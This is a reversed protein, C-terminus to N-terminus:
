EAPPRASGAATAELLGLLDRLGDPGIKSEVIGIPMVSVRSPHRAEIDSTPVRTIKGDSGAFVENNGERNLGIGSFTKGSKLEVVWPVYRPAIERSPVLISDALKRRSMRRAIHTLDPGTTGGRGNLTHCKSCQAYSFFLRWGHDIDPKRKDSDMQKLWADAYGSESNAVPPNWIPVSGKASILFETQSVPDVTSLDPPFRGIGLRQLLKKHQASDRLGLMADARLQADLSVDEAIKALVGLREPQSGLALTRVAARSVTQNKSSSLKLLRQPTLSEHDPPLSRLAMTMISDPYGEEGLVRAFYHGRHSKKLNAVKGGDLWELTAMTATFLAPTTDKRMALKKIPPLFLTLKEDAIWRLAYLRVFPSPDSLGASLVSQRVDGIAGSRRTAELWAVRVSPTTLDDQVPRVILRSRSLGEIAANRIFPDSDGLYNVQSSSGPTELKRALKGADSLPPLPLAQPAGSKLSLRWIRGKGHVPYSRDVWDTFFISSDPAVAFDVPRFNEDGQVAVDLKAGFSAGRPELTYREIRYDGWSTVWLQGRYPLVACPAEGTGAVMPLTGPLEGDWAQLPHKGSRGYRFQYGYDGGPVIHMLRCPPMSDPDNGVCFIRNQPDVCIGFPNWFGTALKKLKKGDATCRYINGGEGGGSLKKGGASVLVYDKGLNEGLGFVLWGDKDFSLGCLGNHPYDGETELWAIKQEEDAKDDGDTDRIRFIKMRTAVYIWGDQGTLLSMTKSTGEYFTRFRDAKGDGNTDEVLRIRDHKPGAYDKPHFHTHVEVVLLRGKSDFTAGVPTVIDPESAFLTLEYLDDLVKPEAAQLSTTFLLASLIAPIRM